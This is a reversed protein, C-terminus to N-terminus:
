RTAPGAKFIDRVRQATDASLGCSAAARSTEVHDLVKQSHTDFDRLGEAQLKAAAADAARVKADISAKLELLRVKDELAAVAQRASCDLGGKAYFLGGAILGVAAALLVARLTPLTAPVLYSAPLLAAGAAILLVNLPWALPNIAGFALLSLLLTIM